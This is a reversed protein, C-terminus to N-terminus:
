RAALDAYISVLAGIADQAQGDGMEDTIMSITGEVVGANECTIQGWWGELREWVDDPVHEPQIFALRLCANRLRDQVRAPSMAMARVILYLQEQAYMYGM